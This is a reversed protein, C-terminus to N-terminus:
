HVFNKLENKLVQSKQFIFISIQKRNGILIIKSNFRDQRLYLYKILNPMQM